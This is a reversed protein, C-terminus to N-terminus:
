LVSPVVNTAVTVVSPEPKTLKPPAAATATTIPVAVTPVRPTILISPFSILPVTAAKPTLVAVVAAASKIVSSLAWLKTNFAVAAVIVPLAASTLVTTSASPITVLLSTAKVIM